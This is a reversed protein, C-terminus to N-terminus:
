FKKNIRKYSYLYMDGFIFDFYVRNCPSIQAFYKEKSWNIRGRIKLLLIFCCLCNLRIIVFLLYLVFRETWWQAFLIRHPKTVESSCTVFFSKFSAHSRSFGSRATNGLFWRFIDLVSMSFAICSKRNWSLLLELGNSLIIKPAHSLFIWIM